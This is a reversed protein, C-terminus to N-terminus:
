ANSESCRARRFISRARHTLSSHFAFSHTRCTSTCVNADRARHFGRLSSSQSVFLRGRKGSREGVQLGRALDVSCCHRRAADGPQDLQQSVAVCGSHRVRRRREPVTHLEPQNFDRPQHERFPRIHPETRCCCGLQLALPLIGEVATCCRLGCHRSQTHQSHGSHDGGGKRM